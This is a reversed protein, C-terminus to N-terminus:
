NNREPDLRWSSISSNHTYDEAPVAAVNHKGLLHKSEVMGETVIAAPTTEDSPIGAGKWQAERRIRLGKKGLEESGLAPQQAETHGSSDAEM